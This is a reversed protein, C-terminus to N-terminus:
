KTLATQLPAIGTAQLSKLDETTLELPEPANARRSDIHDTSVRHGHHTGITGLYKDCHDLFKFLTEYVGMPPFDKLTSTASASM